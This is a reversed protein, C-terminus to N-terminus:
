DNQKSEIAGYCYYHNFFFLNWHSSVAFTSKNGEQGYQSLIRYRKCGLTLRFVFGGDPIYQDWPVLSFSFNPFHSVIWMEAWSNAINSRSLKIPCLMDKSNVEHWPTPSTYDDYLCLHDINLFLLRDAYVETNMAASNVIDLVHFCVLHEDVSSHISFLHHM